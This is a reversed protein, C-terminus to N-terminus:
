ETSVKKLSEVKLRLTELRWSDNNKKFHIDSNYFRLIITEVVVLTIHGYTPVQLDYGQRQELAHTPQRGSPTVAAAWDHALTPAGTRWYYRAHAATYEPASCESASCESASCEPAVASLHLQM